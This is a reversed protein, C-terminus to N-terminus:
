GKKRRYLYNRKYLHPNMDLTVLSKNSNNIMIENENYDKKNMINEKNIDKNLNDQFEYSEVKNKLESNENIINELMEKLNNENKHKDQIDRNLDKVNNILEDNSNKM